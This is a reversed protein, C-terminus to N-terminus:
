RHARAEKIGAGTAHTIKRLLSLETQLRRLARGWHRKDRPRTWRYLARVQVYLDLAREACREISFTKATAVAAESMARRQPASLQSVWRLAARFERVGEISVLRGNRADQMVERVGPADLAVVPVGAAMAEVLVLGQTESKSAFAFVDMAHYADALEPGHCEGVCRVREGVGAARCRREVMPQSPGQGIMVFWARPEARLFAIVARTLFHLNKEPSLRGLHGIVFAQEPVGAQRRFRHRRGRAFRRVDVGTPVVDVPVSVGRARLLEAVSQSPAFVRDCLNAYGTALESMFREVAKGRVPLYHTYQEFLTHHTFVLPVQLDAAARLATDGMLFPHHAHVLDPKVRQLAASLFGPIPLRMSFPSGGVNSIAPVRIVDRERKPMDKFVPAVIVVRHGRKRYAQTFSKISRELGGVLPTYTNTMMLIKM